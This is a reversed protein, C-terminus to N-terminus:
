FGVRLGGRMLGQWLITGAPLDSGIFYGNLSPGVTFWVNKMLPVHYTAGVTAGLLSYPALYGTAGIEVSLGKWVNRLLRIDAGVAAHPEIEILLAAAFINQPQEDVSADIGFRLTTRLRRMGMGRLYTGAEVGSAADATGALVWQQAHAPKSVLAITALISAAALSAFVTKM